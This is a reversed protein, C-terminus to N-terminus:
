MMSEVAHFLCNCNLVMLWETLDCIDSVSVPPCKANLYDLCSLLFGPTGPLVMFEWKV